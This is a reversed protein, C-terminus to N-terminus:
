GPHTPHGALWTAAVSMSTLREADLPDADCLALDARAGVALRAGGTTAVLAEAPTLRSASHWSRNVAASMALWPDLAAVPADSGFLLHAGADRLSRLPFARSTRGIWEAEAVPEDDLLHAPQVSASVGLAAFRSADPRAVLQAHEIRGGTGVREFVDLAQGVAADGIAHITASIGREHAGAVIAALADVDHAAFGHGGDPYPDHCWATRTNLSGDAFLKLRGMSVFESLGTGTPPLEDGLEHEYVGAEVRLTEFGAAARRQWARVAGSLELDVIGTVGRAAASRAAAAVLQDINDNDIATVQRGLEFAETETLWWHTDPRGLSALAARNTWTTHVDASIVVVPFGVTELAEPTPPEAWLADRFGIGVTLDPGGHARLLAAVHAPSEADSVDVRERTLAWQEMHVHHDWLGPTLWRGDADFEEDDRPLNAGIASITGVTVAVDVPDSTPALGDVLRANRILVM